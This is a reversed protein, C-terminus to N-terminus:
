KGVGRDNNHHYYEYFSIQEPIKTVNGRGDVPAKWFTDRGNEEIIFYKFEAM